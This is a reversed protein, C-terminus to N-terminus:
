QRAPLLLLAGRKPALTVSTVVDGALTAYRRPLSLTVTRQSPNVVVCGRRFARLFGGDRAQYDGQPEGLDADYFPFWAGAAAAIRYRPGYFFYAQEGEKAMLYSAFLFLAEDEAVPDTVCLLNTLKGMRNANRVQNVKASWGWRGDLETRRSMWFECNAGQVMKLYALSAEPEGSRMHNFILKKDRFGADVVAKRIVALMAVEDVTWREPTLNIPVASIWKGLLDSRFPFETSVNDLQIGDYRGTKLTEVVRAALYRQLGSNGTNFACRNKYRPYYIKVREGRADHHFWDEHGNTDNWIRAYYPYRVADADVDSTNVYCFVLAGPNRRRFSSIVEPKVDASAIMLDYRHGVRELDALTNDGLAMLTFKGTREAAQAAPATLLVLMLAVAAVGGCGRRDGSGFLWM